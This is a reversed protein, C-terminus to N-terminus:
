MLDVLDSQLEYCEVFCSSLLPFQALSYALVNDSQIFSCNFMSFLSSICVFEEVLDGYPLYNMEKSNRIASIVNLCDGELEIGTMGHKFWGIGSM